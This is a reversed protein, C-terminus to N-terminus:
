IYERSRASEKEYIKIRGIVRLLFKNIINIIKTIVLIVRIDILKSSLLTQSKRIVVTYANICYMCEVNICVTCVRVYEYMCIYM